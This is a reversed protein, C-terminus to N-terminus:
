EEDDNYEEEEDDEDYDDIDDFDFDDDDELEEEMEDEEENDEDDEDEEGDTISVMEGLEENDLIANNDDIFEEWDSDNDNDTYLGDEMEKIPYKVM